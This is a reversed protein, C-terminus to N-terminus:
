RKVGSGSRRVIEESTGLYSEVVRDDNLVVDPAGRVVVRGQDMALLEDSVSSILSMDHEIILMSCGTEVRVRRLLPALQETEAQAIGTSPEDLLLVKPETALVCALDTIRRLGTSLEKVFKDRYAGIDLLEILRDARIRIRKEGRRMNPLQLANMVMSKVVLQHELAVLLNEYVTLSPVLRADQFRRVLRRRAREDPSMSTVDVGDFIISGADPPLYGSILDFVTTKGAGNPGVLGLVEGDRLDFSVDDVALIGGFSKSLEQVQLVPRAHELAARQRVEDARTQASAPAGISGTGKVYVARLIDPRRLLDATPGTFRIEGKEMFVARQAVTLAVNVSQEVIVITVGRRHIEKVKEILEQVVAPSLGLSLEDILLLRPKALLAQALSLM